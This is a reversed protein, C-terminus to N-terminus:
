EIEQMRTQWQDILDGIGKYAFDENALEYAWELAASTDSANACGTALQFLIEKRRTSESPPLGKMSDEFNRQALRWNNREKFCFGLYMLAKWQLRPDIRAAQLEQIAGDIQGAQLLRIGVELRHAMETPYREAKMRHLDLERRNIDEFLQLRLQQLGQDEPNSELKMETFALNERHPQIEIDLLEIALSFNNGAADLGSRLTERAQEWDGQRKFTQALQLYHNPDHPDAEIKATISNLERTKRDIPSTTTPLGHETAENLISTEDTEDPIDVPKLVSEYNGKAITETAALETFKDQAEQDNPLVKRIWEWIANAKTFNGVKEYIRALSKNVKIDEPSRERAQLLTWIAASTLGVKLYVKAIALHTGVDWPNNTFIDESIELARTYNEETVAKKLRLKSPATTIAAFRSGKLNGQYKKKQTERLTKRYLFNGPDLKCCQLLLKIAYDNDGNAFVQRARDFQGAAVRREEPSPVPLSNADVM